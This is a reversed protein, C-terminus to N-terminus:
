LARKKHFRTTAAPASDTAAPASDTAAPASDTTAAPASDKKEGEGIADFKKEADKM